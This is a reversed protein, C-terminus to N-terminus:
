LLGKLIAYGELNDGDSVIIEDIGLQSMVITLIAAGGALVDARLKDICPIQRIEEVSMSFLKDTMKRMESKTIVTGTVKDAQYEELGNQIAALSTATGGIAYIKEKIEPTGYEKVVEAVFEELTKQDRGCKDKVRVVGVNLSKEYVIKGQRQLIFETSAGGVDIIGGDSVGIAGLIGIEAETEGSIVEVDLSLRAKAQELFESRNEASRVAATAFAYVAQAGELRAKALFSEMASLTRSIAEPKLCPSFALGEGLRTTQITKYFVKGDALMMLRVSNSGIDIVAIKNM